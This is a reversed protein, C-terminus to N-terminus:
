FGLYFHAWVSGVESTQWIDPWHQTTWQIKELRIHRADAVLGLSTNTGVYGSHSHNLLLYSWSSDHHIWMMECGCIHMCVYIYYHMRLCVCLCEYVHTHIYIYVHVIHIHIYIYACTYLYLVKACICLCVHLVVHMRIYNSYALRTQICTYIYIYIDGSLWKSCWHKELIDFGTSLVNFFFWVSFM